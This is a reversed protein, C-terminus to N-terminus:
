RWLNQNSNLYITQSSKVQYDYLAILVSFTRTFKLL